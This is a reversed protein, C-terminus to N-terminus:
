SHIDINFLQLSHTCSPPLCLVTVFNNRALINTEHSKHTSHEDLLLLVPNSLSQQTSSIFYKMWLEFLEYTM